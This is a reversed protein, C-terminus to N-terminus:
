LEEMELSGFRNNPKIWLIEGTRGIRGNRDKKVLLLYSIYEEGEWGVDSSGVTDLVGVSRLAEILVRPDLAGGRQALGIDRGM